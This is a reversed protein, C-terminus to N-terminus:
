EIGGKYPAKIFGEIAAEQLEEFSTCVRHASKALMLNFDGKLGPSYYIIKKGKSYAYGCEFLTGMDKEVTSAIVYDCVDIIAMNKAFIADWGFGPNTDERPYFVNYGNLALKIEELAKEQAASFWGGACYIM